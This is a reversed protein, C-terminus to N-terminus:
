LESVRLGGRVIVRLSRGRVDSRVWCCMSNPRCSPSELSSSACSANLMPLGSTSPGSRNRRRFKFRVPFRPSHHRLLNMEDCPTSRDADAYARASLAPQVLCCMPTRASRRQLLQGTTSFCSLVRQGSLAHFVGSDLSRGAGHGSHFLAGLAFRGSNCVVHALNASGDAERISLGHSPPPHAAATTNM